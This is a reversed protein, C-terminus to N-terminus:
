AKSIYDLAAAPEHREAQLEIENERERVERKKKEPMYAGLYVRM